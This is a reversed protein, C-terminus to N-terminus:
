PVFEKVSLRQQDKECREIKRFKRERKLIIQMHHARNLMVLLRESCWDRVRFAFSGCHLGHGFVAPRVFPAGTCPVEGNVSGNVPVKLDHAYWGKPRGTPGIPSDHLPLAAIRILGHLIASSHNEAEASGAADEAIM